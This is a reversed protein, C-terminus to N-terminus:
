KTPTDSNQSSKGVRKPASIHYPAELLSMLTNSHLTKYKKLLIYDCISNQKTNKVFIYDFINM